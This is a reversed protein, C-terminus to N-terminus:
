GCVAALKAPDAVLPNGEGQQKVIRENRRQEWDDVPYQTAWACMLKRDQSSMRLQYRDHMYLTIRAARGRVEERPQFRKMKFDTVSKCQGYMPAPNRTWAGYSFNGRDGNVEGVAPVLNNLDGEAMQFVPDTSTCNKRGGNQWCQRQHGLVWAPVVHEWEIRSARNANKRPVYGCSAFDVDKGTYQCGCYFDQEMGAFVRPLVKKADNFNRHGVASKGSVLVADGPLSSEASPNAPGSPGLLTQGLQALQKVEPSHAFSNVQGADCGVLLLSILLFFYRM